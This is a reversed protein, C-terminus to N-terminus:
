HGCSSAIVSLYQLIEFENILIDKKVQRTTQQLKFTKYRETFSHFVFEGAEELDAQM